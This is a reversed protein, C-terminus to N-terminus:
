GRKLQEFLGESLEDELAESNSILDIASATPRTVMVRETLDDPSLKLAALRVSLPPHTDMPHTVREEALRAMAVTHGVGQAAVAFEASVNVVTVRSLRGQRERLLQGREWEKGYATLKALSVALDLSGSAAVGCQDAALERDRSIGKEARSFSEFFLTLIAVAPYLPIMQVLSDAAGQLEALSRVTGQYIPYFRRTFWLDNGRFHGLEHGIVAALESQTLIRCLPLSLYLIRGKSTGNLCQVPQETVYFTPDLGVIVYRPPTVGLKAALGDIMTWLAPHEDKVLGLGLAEIDNTKVTTLSARILAVAGFLAGAGAGLTVLPLTRNALVSPGLHLSFVILVGQTILLIVLLLNTLPLGITFALLLLVRSFRALYGLVAIGVLLGVGVVASVAATWFMIGAARYEACGVPGSAANPVCAQALSPGTLSHGGRYELDLRTQVLGAVGVLILPVALVLVLLWIARIM